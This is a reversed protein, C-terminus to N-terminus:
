CLMRWKQWICSTNSSNLKSKLRKWNQVRVNTKREAAGGIKWDQRGMAEFRLTWTQAQQYSVQYKLAMEGYNEGNAICDKAIQVREERTTERGQNM